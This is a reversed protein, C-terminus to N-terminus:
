PKLHLLLGPLALCSLELDQQTQDKIVPSNIRHFISAPVSAKPVVQRLTTINVSDKRIWRPPDSNRSQFPTRPAPPRHAAQLVELGAAPVVLLPHSPGRWTLRSM